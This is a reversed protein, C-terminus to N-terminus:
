MGEYSTSVLKDDGFDNMAMEDHREDILSLRWLHRWNVLTGWSIIV